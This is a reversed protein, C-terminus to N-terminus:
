KTASRRNKAAQVCERKFIIVDPREAKFVEMLKKVNEDHYKPLPIMSHIQEKPIGLGEIAKVIDNGFITRQQGTMGTTGNDFIILNANVKATAYSLLSNIGSHFFTSDGIVGVSPTMGALAAGFTMGVSAGMAVTSHICEHPKEYGLTYCGIDGFVRFDAIDMKLFAEKIAKFSDAHGCGDCLRPPRAPLEVEIKHTIEPCEINLTKRLKAPTLEGSIPITKDRRGHIRASKKRAIFMDEIYPYDEEFIYIVDCFACMKEIFEHNLPYAKVDLRTFTRVVENQRCLQDFYARGMGAVVVGIRNSGFTLTNYSEVARELVPLIQRLYNYRERAYGPVLVWNHTEIRSPRGLNIVPLSEVRKVIGRSHALRTTLRLFVPLRLKESLEFAKITFEYTEQHTSPELTVLSAFDALCRSDQENQSSHMSPDDAVFLVLGGKIGTLASNVLPDMAVNLGVHKMTVLARGGAYSCGLAMEYACKENAAWHAIRGDNLAHIIKEAGEFAETSPTGPYGFVGKVGADIAGFSIAEDALVLLEKEEYFKM